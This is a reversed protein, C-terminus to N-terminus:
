NNRKEFKETKKIKLRRRVLFVLAIIVTGWILAHIALLIGAIPM